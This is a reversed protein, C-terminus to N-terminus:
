VEVTRCAIELRISFSAPCGNSKEKQEKRWARTIKEKGKGDYTHGKSAFFGAKEM